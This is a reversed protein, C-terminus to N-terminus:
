SSASRITGLPNRPQLLPGITLLGPHEELPSRNLAWCGCLELALADSARKQAKTPGSLCPVCISTCTFCGYVCVYFLCGDVYVYFLCVWVCVCLIFIVLYIKLLYRKISNLYLQASSCLEGVKGPGPWLSPREPRPFWLCFIM